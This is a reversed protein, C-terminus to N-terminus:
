SPPHPAFPDRRVGQDRDGNWLRSTRELEVEGQRQGAEFAAATRSVDMLYRGWGSVEGFEDSPVVVEVVSGSARLHDVRQNMGPVLGALLERM